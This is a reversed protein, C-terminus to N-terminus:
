NNKEGGKDPQASDLQPIETMWYYEWFTRPLYVNHLLIAKRFLPAIQLPTYGAIGCGIPTVFFKLEQHQAAFNIFRNINRATELLGEMSSIAYSQGQLGDGQGWVAGFKKMAAYAAGGGHHGQANSGYVFIENEELKDIMQPTTRDPLIDTSSEKSIYLQEEEAINYSQFVGKYLEFREFETNYRRNIRDFIIKFNTHEANWIETCNYRDKIQDICLDIIEYCLDNPIDAIADCQHRYKDITMGWLVYPDFVCHRPQNDLFEAMRKSWWAPSNEYDAPMEKHCRKTCIEITIEPQEGNMKLDNVYSMFIVGWGAKIIKAIEANQRRPIYGIKNDKFYIAVTNADHKNEEYKLTLIDDIELKDFVDRDKIYQTGAVKCTLYSVDGTLMFRKVNKIRKKCELEREHALREREKSKPKYDKRNEMSLYFDEVVKRMEDPLYLMAKEKIDIPIGWIHEAISGVIAGLTDADAGLSVARRIAEEFSNSKCIIDVAPPITGQCTEDFINRCCEYNYDMGLGYKYLVDHKIDVVVEPFGAMPIPDDCRIISWYISEAICQAGKIGEPHNHTCEASKKAEELMENRDNFFWMGIPSVRMASGNGYSGYPHPNDSEVWKRFRGGFGVGSKIYRRCWDHLSEGYDRGKLLADAIAITCLTDDTFKSGDKFMEFNYDNTPNFEYASGIIDGIIAGLM